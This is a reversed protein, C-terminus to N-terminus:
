DTNIWKHGSDWTVTNAKAGFMVNNFLRNPKKKTTLSQGILLKDKYMWYVPLEVYVGLFLEVNLLM